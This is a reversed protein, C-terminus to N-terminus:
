KKVNVKQEGDVYAVYETGALAAIEKPKNNNKASTEVNRTAVSGDQKRAALARLVIKQGGTSETQDPTSGSQFSTPATKRGTKSPPRSRRRTM